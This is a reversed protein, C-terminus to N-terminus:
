LHESRLVGDSCWGQRNAAQDGYRPGGRSCAPALEGLLDRGESVRVFAIRRALELDSMATPDARQRGELSRVRRVLAM